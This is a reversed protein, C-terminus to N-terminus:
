PREQRALVARYYEAAQSHDQLGAEGQPKLTYTGDLAAKFWGEIHASETLISRTHPGTGLRRLDAVSLPGFRELCCAIHIATERHSSVLKRRVSGGENFDGARRKVERLVTKRLKGNKVRDLILLPQEVTVPPGKRARPSVLLLGLELRRVLYLQAAARTRWTRLNPPRPIAIYVANAIEQRRAAQALVAANLQLKLEVVVLEEGKLAAVDCKRVEGQVSYGQEALFDHVPRYLDTETLKPAAARPM